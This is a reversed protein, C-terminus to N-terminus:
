RRPDHEYGIPGRLGYHNLQRAVEAFDASETFAFLGDVYPLATAMGRSTPEYNPSAALPNLWLVGRSRQRLWCMGDELTEIDGVDLGDSIIVVTTRREVADQYRDRLTTIAEGILTGGGWTIDANRLSAMPDRDTNESFASTVETLRTDFFFTRVGRGDNQLRRIAALLFSRDVQDLVSQSVDVLLCSRFETQKRSKHPVSVPNGGTSLSERLAQQVDIRENGGAAWNRGGITALAREFQRIDGDALAPNRSTHSVQSGTGADSYTAATEEDDVISQSTHSSTAHFESQQQPESDVGEDADGDASQSAYESTSQLTQHHTAENTDDNASSTIQARLSHWFDDFHEDFLKADESSSVLTAKLAPRAREKEFGVEVLAKSADICAHAPITADHARLTDAFRVLEGIVHDRAAVFDPVADGSDSNTM